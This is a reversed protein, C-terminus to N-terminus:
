AAAVKALADAPILRRRGIKVSPLRGAQLEAYLTTRGVGAIRAAEHISLLQVPGGDHGALEARLEERLADALEALAAELRDSM